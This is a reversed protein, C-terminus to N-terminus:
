LLSANLIAHASSKLASMRALEGSLPGVHRDVARVCRMSDPRSKARLRLNYYEPRM